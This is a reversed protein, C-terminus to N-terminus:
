REEAEELLKFPDLGHHRFILRLGELVVEGKSLYIGKEVLHDLADLYPKTLTVNVRTKKVKGPRDDM